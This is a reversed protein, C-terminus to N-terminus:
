STAKEKKFLNKLKQMTIAGFFFVFIWYLIYLGFLCVRLVGTWDELIFCNLLVILANIFHIFAFFECICALVALLTTVKNLRHIENLYKDKILEVQVRNNNAIVASLEESVEKCWDKFIYMTFLFILGGTISPLIYNSYEM